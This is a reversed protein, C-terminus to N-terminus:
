TTLKQESVSAGYQSERIRPYGCRTFNYHRKLMGFLQEVIYRVKSISKNMKKQYATLKKGRAGKYMIFDKLRLGTLLKRNDAM